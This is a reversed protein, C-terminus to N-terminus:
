QAANPAMPDYQLEAIRLKTMALKMSMAPDFKKAQDRYLSQALEASLDRFKVWSLQSEKTIRRYDAIVAGYRDRWAKDAAEKEWNGINKKIDLRYLDELKEDAMRVVGARVPKLERAQMTEAVLKLFNDRIYAGQYTGYLSRAPTEIAAEAARRADALQYTKFAGVTQDFTPRDIPDLKSRVRAIKRSLASEASIQEVSACVELDFNTIALDNCYDVRRCSRAANRECARLAEGLRHYTISNPDEKLGTQLAAKARQLNRPAGEGNLYMLAVFSWARDSEFCQLARPYDPAHDIGFYLGLCPFQLLFCKRNEAFDRDQGCEDNASVSTAALALSIVAAALGIFITERM